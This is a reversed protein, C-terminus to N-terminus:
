CIPRTSSSTCGAMRRSTASSRARSSAAPVSSAAGSASSGRRWRCAARPCDARGSPRTGSPARLLSPSSARGSDRAARRAPRPASRIRDRCRRRSDRPPARTRRAPSSRRRAPASTGRRRWSRRELLIGPTCPEAGSGRSTSVSPTRPAPKMPAPMADTATCCPVGTRSLSVSRARTPFPSAATRSTSRSRSLFFCIVCAATRRGSSARRRCSRSCRSRGPM